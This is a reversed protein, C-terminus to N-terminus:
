ATALSLLALADHDPSAPGAQFVALRLGDATTLIESTLTLRGVDPHHFVRRAGRKVRVEYRAWLDAFDASAATLEALLAALEPSGPQATSVTRLQAVCDRAMQIWDVFVARAAPDTFVYRILNRGGAPLDGLGPLLLLGETNAALIDSVPSLLYAPAPRLADLLQGLGPRPSPPAQRVGRAPRGAGASRGALTALARLHAREDGDLRLADALATLVGEGPRLDRGQELRTYYDVSVGALAALEERRLGPTQRRTIGAPLGVDEPRLRARRSRLFAGLVGRDDV